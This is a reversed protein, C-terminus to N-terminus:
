AGNHNRRRRDVLVALALGLTLCAGIQSWDSHFAAELRGLDLHFWSLSSAAVRMGMAVMFCASLFLKIFHMHM